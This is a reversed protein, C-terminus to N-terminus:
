QGLRVVPVAVTAQGRLPVEALWGRTDAAGWPLPVSEQRVGVRHAGTAVLPFSYRGASDTTTRFRGDLVVEVGPVGAEQPQQEGDRNEDFFVRGALAGAGVVPRDGAGLGRVTNGRAGDFRAWLAVFADRTRLLQSSGTAILAGDAV